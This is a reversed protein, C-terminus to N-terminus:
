KSGAPAASSSAGQRELLQSAARIADHVRTPATGGYVDRQAIIRDLNLSAYIDEEIDPACRQLDSLPLEEIALGKDQAVRVISAAMDHAERFPTGRQVLYDALDTANSYGLAAIRAASPRNVKIGDLIRALVILSQSLTQMADFLPEKDEQQDKNYATPLGKMMISVNVAAGLLRGCKGRILELGDPNRKQPMLSSGTTVADHLSICGALSSTYLILDEAIRSLHLGCVSAAHLADLVFDRDSVADISNRTPRDFGLSRALSARDVPYATGALAGSGLPCEGAADYAHLLRTVDRELMEFYALCWHAFLIPQASQLHTFGPFVTDREREALSVLARQVIRVEDIRHRLQERVWLRLDTAVQDNRSRGTHLKKAAVGVKEILRSEVYSHVDEDPSTRIADPDTAAELAISRLANVISEREGDSLIGDARLASSWAISGVIDHKLLRYDFPLSRNFSQFADDQECVLSGKWMSM